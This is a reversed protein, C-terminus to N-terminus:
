LQQQANNAKQEHATAPSETSGQDDGRLEHARTMRLAAVLVPMLAAGALVSAGAAVLSPTLGPLWYPWAVMPQTGPEFTQAAMLSDPFMAPAFQAAVAAALMALGVLSLRLPSLQRGAAVVALMLLGVLLPGFAVMSMATAAVPTSIVTYGENGFSDYMKQPVPQMFFVAFQAYFGAFLVAATAIAFLRRLGEARQPHLLINLLLIAALTGLGVGVMPAGAQGATYVWMMIPDYGQPNMQSQSMAAPIAAITIGAAVLLVAVCAAVWGALRAGAAAPASAPAAVPESATEDALAPRNPSEHGIPSFGGVAAPPGSATHDRITTPATESTVPWQLHAPAAEGGPQFMAPYREDFQQEGMGGWYATGSPFYGKLKGLSASGWADM